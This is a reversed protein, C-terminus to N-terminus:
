KVGGKAADIAARLNKQGTKSSVQWTRIYNEGAVNLMRQSQLWDLRKTDEQAVTLEDRLRNNERELAEMQYHLAKRQSAYTVMKSTAEFVKNTKPTDSM